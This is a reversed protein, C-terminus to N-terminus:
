ESILCFVLLNMPYLFLLKSNSGTRAYLWFLLISELALFYPQLAAYETKHILLVLATPPSIGLSHNCQLSSATTGLSSIGSDTLSEM